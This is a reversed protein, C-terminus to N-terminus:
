GTQMKNGASSRSVNKRIILPKSKLKLRIQALTTVKDPPPTTAAASRCAPLPYTSHHRHRGFPKFTRASPPITAFILSPSTNPRSLQFITDTFAIVPSNEFSFFIAFVLLCEM